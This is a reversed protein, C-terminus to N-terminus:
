EDVAEEGLGTKGVMPAKHHFCRLAPSPIGDSDAGGDEVGCEFEECLVAKRVSGEPVDGSLGADGVGEDEVVEAGLFGEVGFDFAADDFAVGLAEGGCGACDIAGDFEAGFHLPDHSVDAFVFECESEAGPGADVAIVLDPGSFGIEEVEEFLAHFDGLPLTEESFIEVGALDADHDHPNDEEPEVVASVEGFAETRGDIVM